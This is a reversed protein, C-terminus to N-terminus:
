FAPLARGVQRAPCFAITTWYTVSLTFPAYDKPPPPLILYV